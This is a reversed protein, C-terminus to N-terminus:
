SIFALLVVEQLVFLPYLIIRFIKPIAIYVFSVLRMTRQVCSFLEDVDVKLYLQEESIISFEWSVIRSAAVKKFNIKTM